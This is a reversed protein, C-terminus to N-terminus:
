LFAKQFPNNSSRWPDAGPGIRLVATIEPHRHYSSATFLSWFANSIDALVVLVMQSPVVGCHTGLAICCTGCPERAMLVLAPPPLFTLFVGRVLRFISFSSLLLMTRKKEGWCFPSPLMLNSHFHDQILRLTNGVDLQLFVPSNRCAM